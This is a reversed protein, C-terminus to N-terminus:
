PELVGGLVGKDVHLIWVAVDEGSYLSSVNKVEFLVGSVLINDAKSIKTLTDTPQVYVQADSSLVTKDDIAEQEFAIPPSVKDVSHYTDTKVVGGVTPDYGGSTSTKITAAVGFEDLIDLAVAAFEIDNSNSM